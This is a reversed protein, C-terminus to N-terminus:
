QRLKGELKLLLVGIEPDINEWPVTGPNDKSFTVLFQLAEKILKKERCMQLIEGESFVLDKNIPFLATPPVDFREMIMWVVDSKLNKYGLWRRVVERKRGIRRAFEAISIKNEKLLSKLYGGIHVPNEPM